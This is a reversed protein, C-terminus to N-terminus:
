PKLDVKLASVAAAVASQEPPTPARCLVDDVPAADGFTAKVTLVVAELPVRLVEPDQQRQQLLLTHAPVELFWLCILPRCCEQAQHRPWCFSHLM